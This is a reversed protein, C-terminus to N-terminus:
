ESTNCVHLLVGALQSAKVLLISTGVTSQMSLIVNGSLILLTRGFVLLLLQQQHPLQLAHSLDIM